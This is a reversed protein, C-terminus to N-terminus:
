GLAGAGPLGLCTRGIQCHSFRLWLFADIYAHELGKQASMIRSYAADIDIATTRCYCVSQGAWSSADTPVVTFFLNQAKGLDLHPGNGVEEGQLGDSWRGDQPKLNVVEVGQTTVENRDLGRQKAELDLRARVAKKDKDDKAAPAVDRKTSRILPSAVLATTSISM